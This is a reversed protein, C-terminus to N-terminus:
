SCGDWLSHSVWHQPCIGYPHLLQFLRATPLPFDAARATPGSSSYAVPLLGCLLLLALRVSQPLSAFAAHHFPLRSFDKAYCCVLSWGVAELLRVSRGVAQLHVRQHPCSSRAKSRLRLTAAEYGLPLPLARLFRRLRPEFGLPAVRQHQFKPLCRTRLRRPGVIPTRTRTGDLASHKPM